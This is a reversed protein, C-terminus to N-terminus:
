LFLRRRGEEFVLALGYSMALLCVVLGGTSLAIGETSLLHRSLAVGGVSAAVGVGGAVMLGTSLRHTFLRAVLVPATLFSLLLLVGVARFASISTASTQIMLLYNFFLPSIGVLRALTPDFSTIKFEKYFLVVVVANVMLVLFVLKLDDLHLADVDGMVAETGLHSSRTLLTVLVVGLAFLTSFAIGISADEPLRVTRTLFETLFTTLLGTVLSALLMGNLSVSGDTALEAASRTMVAVLVIGVLITHSLANALMTMRRLVLFTGVLASSLAIGSLVAIQVEDSALSTLPLRLTVWAWLREALVILFGWFDQDVYPNSSEM